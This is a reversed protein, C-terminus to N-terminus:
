NVAPAHKHTSVLYVCNKVLHLIATSTHPASEKRSRKYFVFWGSYFVVPMTFMLSIWNWIKRSAVYELHIFPLMGSMSVLFVPLSLALAIWFKKKLNRYARAEEINEEGKNMVLDMGCKPCPGPKDSKVEPHMPCTYVAGSPQSIERLLHMGCVPCDGPEDYTKDGECRMPCYYRYAGSSQEKVPDQHRKIEPLPPLPMDHYQGHEASSGVPVLKMHCVPCNGPHDYTKEGECRMPCYYRLANERPHMGSASHNKIEPLPHLPAAHGYDLSSGVPVLKMHCVPCNGPEDYTKDGECKMPCYYRGMNSNGNEIEERYKNKNMPETVPVLNM